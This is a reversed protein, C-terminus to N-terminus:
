QAGAASGPPAAAGAARIVDDRGGDSRRPPIPPTQTRRWVIWGIGGMAALPLLSLMVTTAVYATSRRADAAMCVPCALALRPLAVFLAAILAARGRERWTSASM